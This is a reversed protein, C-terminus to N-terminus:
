RGGSYLTTGSPVSALGGGINVNDGVVGGETLLSGAEQGGYYSSVASTASSFLGQTLGTQIRADNASHSVSAGSLGAQLRTDATLTNAQQSLLTQAMSGAVANQANSRSVAAGMQGEYVRQQIANNAQWIGQARANAIKAAGIDANHRVVFADMSAQTQQEIVADRNSGVGVTTGSAGLSAVLQGREAVRQQGLLMLDLDAAEWMLRGEEELLSDNYLATAEIQDTNYKVANSQVGINYEVANMQMAANFMGLMTQSQVNTMDTNYGMQANYSNWAAQNDNQSSASNAAVLPGVASLGAAIVMPWVM